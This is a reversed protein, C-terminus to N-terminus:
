FYQRFIYLKVKMKYEQVIVLLSVIKGKLTLVCGLQWLTIREIELMAYSGIAFTNSADALASYGLALSNQWLAFSRGGIVIANRGNGIESHKQTKKIDNNGITLMVQNESDLPM